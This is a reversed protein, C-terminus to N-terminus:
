CSLNVQVVYILALLSFFFFVWLTAEAKAPMLSNGVNQTPGTSGIIQEPFDKM